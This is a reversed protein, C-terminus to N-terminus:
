QILDTRTWIRRHTRFYWQSFFSRGGFAEVMCWGRGKRKAYRINMRACQEDSCMHDDIYLAEWTVHDETWLLMFTIDYHGRFLDDSIEVCEVQQIKDISNRIHDIIDEKYGGYHIHSNETTRIQMYGLIHDPFNELHQINPRLKSILKQVQAVQSRDFTIDHNGCKTAMMRRVAKEDHVPFSPSIHCKWWEYDELILKFLYSNIM